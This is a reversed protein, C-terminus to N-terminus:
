FSAYSLNVAFLHMPNSQIPNPGTYPTELILLGKANDHSVYRVIAAVFTAFRVRRRRKKRKSIIDEHAFTSTYDVSSTTPEEESSEEDEDDIVTQM